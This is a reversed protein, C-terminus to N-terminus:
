DSNPTFYTDLLAWLGALVTQLTKPLARDGFVKSDGTICSPHRARTADTEKTFKQSHPLDPTEQGFIEGIRRL